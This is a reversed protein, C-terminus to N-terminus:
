FRFTAFRKTHKRDYEIAELGLQWLKTFTSSVMYLTIFGLMITFPILNSINLMLGTVLAFSGLTFILKFAQKAISFRLSMLNKNFLRLKMIGGSGKLNMTSDYEHHSTIQGLQSVLNQIDTLAIHHNAQGKIETQRYSLTHELLMAQYKDRYRSVLVPEPIPISFEKNMPPRSFDVKLNCDFLNVRYQLDVGSDVSPLLEYMLTLDQQVQLFSQRLSDLLMFKFLNVFENLEDHSFLDKLFWEVTYERAMIRDAIQQYTDDLQWTDIQHIRMALKQQHLVSPIQFCLLKFQAEKSLCLPVCELIKKITKGSMRTHGSKWHPYTQILEVQSEYGYKKGYIRSFKSFAINNLSFFETKLFKIARSNSTVTKGTRQSSTRSDYKLRRPYWRTYKQPM